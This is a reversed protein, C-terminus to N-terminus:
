PATRGAPKASVNGTNTAGGGAGGKGNGPRPAPLGEVPPTASLALTARLRNIQARLQGVRRDHETEVVVFISAADAEADDATAGDRLDVVRLLGRAAPHEDEPEFRGDYGLPGAARDLTDQQEECWHELFAVNDELAAVRMALARLEQHQECSDEM